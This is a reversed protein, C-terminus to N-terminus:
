RAPRRTGRGSRGRRAAAARCGTMLVWEVRSGASARCGALAASHGACVAAQGSRGASRSSRCTVTCSPAATATRPMESLTRRRALDDAQDPLRAAALRQGAPGREAHQGGPQRRRGPARDREGACSTVSRDGVPSPAAARCRVDARHELVRGRVQVRRQGDAALQGLHQPDLLPRAAPAPARALRDLQEGGDAQVVRLPDKVLDRGLQGAAHQLPDHDGDRDGAVRSSSIASSAVVARSTVMWASIMSSSCPGARGARGPRATRRARGRAHDPLQAVPHHHEVRALHDLGARDLLDDVPRPVGVGLGQEPDGRDAVELAALQSTMGPWGGCTPASTAPQRNAARQGAASRRTGTLCWRGAAARGRAGPASCGPRRGRARRRRRRPRAPRGIVAGAVSGATVPGVGAAAARAPRRRRPGRGPSARSGRATRPRGSSRAPRSRRGPRRSRTPCSWGPWSRPRGSGASFPGPSRRRRGSRRGAGAGGATALPAAPVDLQHELIREAREVRVQGDRLDDALAQPDAAAEVSASISRRAASRAPALDAEVRRQQVAGGPLDGAALPLPDRDGPGQGGVGLQQEAVLRDAREVGAVPVVDQPQEAVEAVVEPQRDDDDGM